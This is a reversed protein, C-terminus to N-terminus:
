SYLVERGLNVESWLFTFQILGPQQSVRIDIFDIKFARALSHEFQALNSTPMM